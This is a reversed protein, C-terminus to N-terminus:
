QRREFFRGAAKGFRYVRCAIYQAYIALLAKADEPVAFRLKM